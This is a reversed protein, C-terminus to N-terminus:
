FRGENKIKFNPSEKAWEEPPSLIGGPMGTTLNWVFQTTTDSPSPNMELFQDNGRLRSDM